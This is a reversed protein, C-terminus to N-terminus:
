KFENALLEELKQEMYKEDEPTRGLNDFERMANAYIYGNSDGSRPPVPLKVMYDDDMIFGPQSLTLELLGTEINPDSSKKRKVTSPANAKWNRDAGGSDFVHKALKGTVEPLNKKAVDDIRNVVEMIAQEIQEIM